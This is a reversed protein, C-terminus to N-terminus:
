GRRRMFVYVVAVVIIVGIVAGVVLLTPFEQTTAEVTVTGDIRYNDQTDVEGEVTSARASIQYDGEAVGTTDWSFTLTTESGATLSAVQQTSNGHTGYYVTVDFNETENGDNRITVSVSVTGGITVRTASLAVNTVAIDHAFAIGIPETQTSLSEYWVWPMYTTNFESQVKPPAIADDVVTLSVTFVGGTTFTHNITPVDVTANTGDDFDWHYETIVLPAEAYSASADFTVSQNIEPPKPSYTFDAVPPALTNVLVGNQATFDLDDFDPPPNPSNQATLFTPYIYTGKEPIYVPETEFKLISEGEALVEFELTALIGSGSEGVYVGKTSWGFLVSSAEAKQAGFTGEPQRALFDGETVNVFELIDPDFSINAQWAYLFKAGAVTVNVKFSEGPERYIIAPEVSLRAVAASSVPKVHIQTTAALIALFIISLMKKQFM